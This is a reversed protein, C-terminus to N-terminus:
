QAFVHTQQGQGSGAATAFRAQAQVYGGFETVVEGTADREHVQSGDAIGFQDHRGDGLRQAHFLAGRARHHLLQM